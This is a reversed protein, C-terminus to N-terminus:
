ENHEGKVTVVQDLFLNGDDNLNGLLWKEVEEKPYHAITHELYRRYYTASTQGIIKYICLHAFDLRAENQGRVKRAFDFDDIVLIKIEPDSM